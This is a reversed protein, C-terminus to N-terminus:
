AYKAVLRVVTNWNRTTAPEGLLRELWANPSGPTRGPKLSLCLAEGRTRAILRVDGRASLAPLDHMELSRRLFTVCCEHVGARDVAGFPDTKVLAVLQRMSRLFGPEVLGCSANLAAAAGALVHRAAVEPSPSFALTGNTLFSAAQTAGAALFASEFETRGPCNPRGLNLNRFFAVYKM